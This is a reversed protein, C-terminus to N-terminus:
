QGEFIRPCYEDWAPVRTWEDCAAEIRSCTNGGHISAIMRPVVVSSDAISGAPAPQWTSAIGVTRVKQVFHFDEQNGNIFPNAEWVRRWYCLSTGLAYKPSPHSYLWAEGRHEERIPGAAGTCCSEWRERWFLMERYGVCDAGSSQLLAVQEAIRNPHSWDDSDWHCIIDCNLCHPNAYNNAMNRLAGIRAKRIGPLEALYEAYVGDAQMIPLPEPSTDLIFLRKDQYTQSRFSAIARAVMEERGNALMVACVTPNSSM